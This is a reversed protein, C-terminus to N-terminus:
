TKERRTLRRQFMAFVNRWDTAAASPDYVTRDPFIYPHRAGPHVLIQSRVTLEALLARLEDPVDKPIIEDHEAFACYIEGGIRSLTQRAAERGNATFGFGLISGAAAFEEARLGAASLAFSGGRGYGVAGYPPAIGARQRLWATVADTDSMASAESVSAAAIKRIATADLNTSQPDLVITGLRHYLDPVVCVYGGGAAIRAMTRMTDTLGGVHPYTIVAAFPGPGDPWALIAGMPGESTAIEVESVDISLAAMERPATM